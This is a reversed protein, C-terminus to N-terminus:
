RRMIFSPQGNNLNREPVIGIADDTYLYAPDADPTARYGCSWRV